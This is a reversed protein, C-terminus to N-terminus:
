SCAYMTVDFLAPGVPNVEAHNWKDPNANSNKLSTSRAKTDLGSVVLMDSVQVSNASSSRLLSGHRLSNITHETDRSAPSVTVIVILRSSESTFSDRLLM